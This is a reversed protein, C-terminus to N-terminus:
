LPGTSAARCDGVQVRLPGSPPVIKGSPVVGDVAHGPSLLQARRLGTVGVKRANGVYDGSTVSIM